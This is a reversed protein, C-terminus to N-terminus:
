EETLDTTSVSRRRKRAREGNTNSDQMQIGRAEKAQRNATLTAQRKETTAKRKKEQTLRYDKAVYFHFKQRDQHLPTPSTLSCPLLDQLLTANHLAHTNVIYNDDDAHVIVAVQRSTDKWEQCVVRSGSPKCGALRCDHQVSVSLLVDRPEVVLFRNSTGEQPRILVPMDFDPHREVGLIFREITLIFDPDGDIAIDPSLIECLRGITFENGHQIAVWTGTVCSDGSKAIVAKNNVWINSKVASTYVCSATTDEWPLYITKKESLPIVHGYRINRPPVWGLHRQIVVDTKLIQRVRLSAQIWNGNYLWYGGSLIHKLRDMSAFKRAIDRSPAQHNSLISCMRFVANFCEFIETSNHIAPGYRRCDSILHTLMHLKIKCTIKNPDVAAFADLVNDIRIELGNLYQDMNRIEPVWIIAGLEGVAKIVKFESPTVLDHVHFVMTQMLTKFHKGILANRYQM